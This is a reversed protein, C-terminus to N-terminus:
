LALKSGVQFRELVHQLRLPLCFFVATATTFLAPAKSVGARKMGVPSGLVEKDALLHIFASLFPPTKGRTGGRGM